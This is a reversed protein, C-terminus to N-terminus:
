KTEIAKKFAPRESIRQVYAKINIMEDSVCGLNNSM